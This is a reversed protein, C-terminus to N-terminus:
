TTYNPVCIDPYSRSVIEATLRDLRDMWGHLKWRLCDFSLKRRGAGVDSTQRM